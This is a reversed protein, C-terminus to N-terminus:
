SLTIRWVWKVQQGAGIQQLAHTEEQCSVSMGTSAAHGNSLSSRVESLRPGLDSNSGVRVDSCRLLNHEMDDYQPRVM